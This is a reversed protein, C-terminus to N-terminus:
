KILNGNQKYYKNKSIYLCESINAAYQGLNSLNKTNYDSLSWGHMGVIGEVFTLGCLARTGAAGVYLPKGEYTDKLIQQFEPSDRVKKLNENVKQRCCGNPMFYAIPVNKVTGEDWHSKEAIQYAQTLCLPSYVHIHLSQISNNPSVHVTYELTNLIKKIDMNRMVSPSHDSNVLELDFKKGDDDTVDIKNGDDDTTNEYKNEWFSSKNIDNNKKM